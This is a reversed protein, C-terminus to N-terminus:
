LATLTALIDDELFTDISRRQEANATLLPARVAVPFGPLRTAIAAKAFAIDSLPTERRFASYRDFIAQASEARGLDGSAVARAIAVPLEAVPGGAGSVVGDVGLARVRAGAGDDGLYVSLRPRLATMAATVAHDKGSEKVGVLHPFEGALRELMPGTIVNGTHRPFNYLWVPMSVRQLVERFFSEVGAAEAFYYPAVVGVVEAFERAHEALAVVDDVATAGVHAIVTGAWSERSRELLTRREELTLSPFEGTTGGVLMARVGASASLALFDALAGYDVRGSEAFPTVSAVVPSVIEVDM